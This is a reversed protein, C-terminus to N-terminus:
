NSKKAANDDEDIKPREKVDPITRVLRFGFSGVSPVSTDVMNESAYFRHSTRLEITSSLWSGGRLVRSRGKPSGIPNKVRAARLRYFNSQYTDETWEWVNGSMDCLDYGNKKKNCVPHTTSTGVGVDRELTDKKIAAYGGYWAVENPDQSGSYEVVDISDGKKAPPRRKQSPSIKSFGGPGRAALEWEAETPLRYGLCSTGKKLKITEGNIAYCTELSHHRSLQNAFYVANRWSVNEVPCKEGCESFRSPNIGIIAGYLEQTVEHKMIFFDHSITVKHPPYEDSGCHESYERTCGMVYSSKPILVQRVSNPFPFDKTAQTVATPSQEVEEAVVIEESPTLLKLSGVGIMGGLLLGISLYVWPPSSSKSSSVYQAKPAPAAERKPAPVVFTESSHETIPAEVSELYASEQESDEYEEEIIEEAFVSNNGSDLVAIHGGGYESVDIRFILPDTSELLIEYAERPLNNPYHYVEEITITDGDQSTFLQSSINLVEYLDEWIEKTFESSQIIGQIMDEPLDSLAGSFSAAASMDLIMAGIIAGNQDKYVSVVFSDATQISFNGGEEIDVDLVFLDSYFQALDRPTRSRFYNPTM